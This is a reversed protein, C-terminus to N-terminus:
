DKTVPPAAHVVNRGARKAAYLATDAREILEAGGGRTKGQVSAVGFSSTVKLKENGIRVSLRAVNKRMREAVLMAGDLSTDPLILVFEEGGYRAAIDGARVSALILKAMAKLVEDGAQHGWTDNFKKFHDVDLLVLSLEAGSREARHLDRRLSDQFARHNYLGTLGDTQALKALRENATELKRNLEDKEALLRELKRVIVTYSRNLEVLQENASRVVADFDPQTAISRQFGSAASTVRKPVESLFETLDKLTLGLATIAQEATKRAAEPDGGEFAGAVREAAWAVRALDGEPPRADHHAAIADAIEDALNWERALTAGRTPHPVSGSMWEQVPRASAPARAVEAAAKLDAGAQVLLGAELFLGTTFCEDAAKKLGIREAILRAAVGRRLCNALLLEGDAGVPAMQSLSLGLALNRVGNVGLLSAAQHVDSVKNALAYAASNVISLLRMAFAPDVEALRALEAVSVDPRLAEQVIQVALTSIPSGRDASM